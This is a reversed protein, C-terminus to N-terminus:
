RRRAEIKHSANHKAAEIEADKKTTHLFAEKGHTRCEWTWWGDLGVTVEIENMEIEKEEVRAASRSAM